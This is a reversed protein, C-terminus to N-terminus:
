APYGQLPRSDGMRVQRERVILRNVGVINLNDYFVILRGSCVGLRSSKGTEIDVITLIHLNYLQHRGNERCMAKPIVPRAAKVRVKTEGM